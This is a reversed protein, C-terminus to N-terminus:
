FWFSGNLTQSSTWLENLSIVAQAGDRYSSRLDLFSGLSYRSSRSFPVQLPFLIRTDILMAEAAIDGASCSVAWNMAKGLTSIQRDFTPFQVFLTIWSVADDSLPTLSQTTSISLDYNYAPATGPVQRYQLGLNIAVLGDANVLQMQTYGDELAETITLTPDFAAVWLSPSLALGADAFAQTTNDSTLLTNSSLYL